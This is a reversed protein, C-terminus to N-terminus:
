GTSTPAARRTPSPRWGAATPTCRWASSTPSCSGTDVFSARMWAVLEGPEVGALLCRNGLVMLRQIHHAYGREGVGDLAHALCRMGTPAGRFAPPLPRHAELVNASRYGPMWLWYVGWVYERWGLVQRLYGEASEIPVRGARYAEEVADCVEGPLLLGLNLSSSLLSHALHWDGDLM